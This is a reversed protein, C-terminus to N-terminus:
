GDTDEKLERIERELGETYERIEAMWAAQRLPPMGWFSDWHHNNADGSSVEALRAPSVSDWPESM